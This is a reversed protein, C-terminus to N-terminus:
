PDSSSPDFGEGKGSDYHTITSSEHMSHIVRTSSSISLRHNAGYQVTPQDAAPLYSELGAYIQLLRGLGAGASFFLLMFGPWAPERYIIWGVALVGGVAPWWRNALALMVDANKTIGWCGAAGLVLILLTAVSRGTRALPPNGFRITVAGRATQPQVILKEWRSSALFASAFQRAIPSAGSTSAVSSVWAELPPVGYQKRRRLRFDQLRTGVGKPLAPSITTILDNIETQVNTRIERSEFENLVDGPGAFRISRSIPHNITWLVQEVPMGVVSPFALSVPEGQMTTAEFEGVFVFVLEHPWFGAQIPVAWVESPSDRRPAKPQVQQGDLLMEYVRFGEPVRFQVETAQMPLEICCIGSIRGREDVMVEIDILPVALPSDVIVSSDVEASTSVLDSREVLKRGPQIESQYSWMTDNSPLEVRWVNSQSDETVRIAPMRHDDLESEQATDSGSVHQDALIM